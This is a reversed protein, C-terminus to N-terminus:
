HHSTFRDDSDVKKALMLETTCAVVGDVTATGKTKFVTFKQREQLFELHLQLQDGPVVMRKFRTKDIGAFLYLDQAAKEADSATLYALVGSAQAMAEVILVGPFVALQPFHGQFVPDSISINKIATLNKGPQVDIVRDLLLFPYRHPIYKKIQEVDLQM